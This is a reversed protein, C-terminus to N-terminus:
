KDVCWGVEEGKQGTQGMIGNPGPPGQQFFFVWILLLIGTTKFTESLKGLKYLQPFFRVTTLVCLTQYM